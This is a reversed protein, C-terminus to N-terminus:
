DRQAQALLRELASRPIRYMRATFHVCPLRGERCAARVTKVHVGLVEAAQAPTLTEGYDRLRSPSNM